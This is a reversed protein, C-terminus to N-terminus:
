TCGVDDKSWRCVMDTTKTSRKITRVIMLRLTNYRLNYKKINRELYFQVVVICFYFPTADWGDWIVAMRSSDMELM